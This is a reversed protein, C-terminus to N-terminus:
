DKSIPLAVITCHQDRPLSRECERIASDVMNKYSSPSLDIAAGLTIITIFGGILIGWLTDAM